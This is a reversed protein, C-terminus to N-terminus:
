IWSYPQTNYLYRDHGARALVNTPEVLNNDSNRSQSCAPAASASHRWSDSQTMTCRLLAPSQKLGGSSSVRGM